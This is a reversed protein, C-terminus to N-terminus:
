LDEIRAVLIPQNDVLKYHAGCLACFRYRMYKHHHEPRRSGCNPCIHDDLMQSNEWEKLALDHVETWFNRTYALELPVTLRRVPGGDCFARIVIEGPEGEHFNILISDFWNKNL